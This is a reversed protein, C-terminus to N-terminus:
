GTGLATAGAIDVTAILRAHSMGNIVSGNLTDFVNHNFSVTLAEACQSASCHASSKAATNTTARALGNSDNTTCDETTKNARSRFFLDRCPLANLEFDFQIVTVDQRNDLLLVGLVMNTVMDAYQTVRFSVRPYSLLPM